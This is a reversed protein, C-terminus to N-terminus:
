AADLKNKRHGPIDVYTDEPLSIIYAAKRNADLHLLMLANSSAPSSQAADVGMMLLFKLPADSM